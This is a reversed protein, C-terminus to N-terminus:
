TEVDWEHLMRLVFRFNEVAEELEANTRFPLRASPRSICTFSVVACPRLRLTIGDTECNTTSGCHVQM